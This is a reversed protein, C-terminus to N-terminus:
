LIWLYIWVGKTLSRSRHRNHCSAIGMEAMYRCTKKRGISHGSRSMEIVIRDSGYTGQSEEFIDKIAKKKLEADEKRTDRNNLWSYYGSREIGLVEAWKTVSYEDHDEIFIYKMQASECLRTSFPFEVGIRECFRVHIERNM